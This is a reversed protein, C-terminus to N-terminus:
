PIKIGHSGVSATSGVEPQTSLTLWYGDFNFHRGKYKIDAFLFCLQNGGRRDIHLVVEGNIKIILESRPTLIDIDEKPVVVLENNTIALLDTGDEYHFRTNLSLQENESAGFWIVPDGAMMLPISSRGFQPLHGVPGIHVTMADGVGFFEDERVFGVQKARPNSRASHITSSEIIGRTKLNHHKLCLLALGDSDHEFKVNAFEPAFHDYECLARGCIVCGFGCESRVVAKVKDPINRSVGYVNFGRVRRRPIGADLQVVDCYPCRCAKISIENRCKQCTSLTMM